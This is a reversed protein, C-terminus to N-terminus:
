DTFEHFFNNNSCLCGLSDIESRFLYFRCLCVGNKKTQLLDHRDCNMICVFFELSIIWCCFFQNFIWNFNLWIVSENQWRARFLFIIFVCVCLRLFSFCYNKCQKMWKGNNPQPQQLPTSPQSPMAQNRIHQNNPPSLRETKATVIISNSNQILRVIRVVLLLLFYLSWFRYTSM